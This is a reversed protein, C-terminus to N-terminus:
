SPIYPLVPDGDGWVRSAVSKPLGCPDLQKIQHEQQPVIQGKRPV